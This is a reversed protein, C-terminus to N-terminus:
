LYSEIGSVIDDQMTLYLGIKSNPFGCKDSEEGM